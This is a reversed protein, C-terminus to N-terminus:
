QANNMPNRTHWRNSNVASVWLHYTAFDGPMQVEGWRVLCERILADNPWCRDFGPKPFVEQPFTGIANLSDRAQVYFAVMEGDAQGPITASFIGDGAIADGENGGDSMPVDIYNPDPDVRYRLTMAAINQRDTARATVVVNENTQPLLPSHKVEYVAPGANAIRTSNVAAPTGLKRPL